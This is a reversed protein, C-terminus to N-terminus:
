ASWRRTSPSRWRAASASSRSRPSAPSSSSPSSRLDHDAGGLLDHPRELLPGRRGGARQRRPGRLARPDAVDPLGRLGDLPRLRDRLDAARQDHRARGPKRLRAPQRVLGVPLDRRPRRLRRRDLAPEDAGGEAAAAALAADGDPRPLQAGPRLPRDEVDLRQDPRPRRPQARNRRRRRRDRGPEAREAPCWRTACGNSWRTPRTPSAAAARVDGPDPRKGPTPRRSCRPSAPPRRSAAPSAPSRPRSGPTGNFAAVVQVPDAGGGLQAPPWNTASGCTAARPSSARAGPHGDRDLAAPDGPDAPVRQRRDGLAVPAGHRPTWRVLVGAGGIRAPRRAEAAASSGAGSSAGPARAVVGGPMVRDGLMAILVPLLTIATLISVAVVIMAGLAM